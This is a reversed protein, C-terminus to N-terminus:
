VEILKVSPELSRKWLSIRKSPDRKDFRDADFAYVTNHMTAVIVLNHGLGKVHAKSVYLPQSYIDGDVDAEGIKGFGRRITAPSLVKEM